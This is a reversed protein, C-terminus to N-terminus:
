SAVQELRELVGPWGSGMREHAFQDKRRFGSQELRVLTGGDAQPTLTWTVVTKMGSASETGDGWRYALRHPEDVTIVECNAIGSWGPMPTARFAFRHGVEAKFDNPMLWEAILWSQTLAKWVKEPPHRMQREFILSRTAEITDTM